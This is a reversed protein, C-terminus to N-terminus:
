DGIPLESWGEPTRYPFLVGRVWGKYAHGPLIRITRAKLQLRTLKHASMEEEMFTFVEKVRKLDLGIVEFLEESSVEEKEARVLVDLLDPNQSRVGGILKRALHRAFRLVRPNVSSNFLRVEITGFKKLSALNIGVYRNQKVAYHKNVFGKVGVDTVAGSALDEIEAESQRNVYGARHESFHIQERLREDFLQFAWAILGLEAASLDPVGVHVHVGSHNPEEKLGEARLDEILKLFVEADKSHRLIPSVVEVASYGVEPRVSFDQTIKLEYDYGSENWRLLFVRTKYSRSVPELFFLREVDLGMSSLSNYAANALGELGLSKPVAGEVEVGTTLKHQAGRRTLLDFYHQSVSPKALVDGCVLAHVNSPLQLGIILFVLNLKLFNNRLM